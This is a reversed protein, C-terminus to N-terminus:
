GPGGPICPGAPRLPKIRCQKEATNLLVEPCTQVGGRSNVEAGM